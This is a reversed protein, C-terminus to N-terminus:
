RRPAPERIVDSLVSGMLTTDPMAQAGAQTAFARRIIVGRLRWPYAVFFALGPLAVSGAAGIAFAPVRTIVSVVLLPPAVLLAAVLTIVLLWREALSLSETIGVRLRDPHRAALILVPMLEDSTM